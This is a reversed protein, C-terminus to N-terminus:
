ALRGLPVDLKRHRKRSPEYPSLAALKVSQKDITGGFYEDLPYLAYPETESLAHGMKEEMRYIRYFFSARDMKLMRCCLKWDGGLLYHYRFLKKEFDDLGRQSVLCFDAVYEETRRGYSRHSDRGRRFELTVTSM